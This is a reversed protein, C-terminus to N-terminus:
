LILDKSLSEGSEIRRIAEALLPAVSVVTFKKNKLVEDKQRITDTIIVEDIASSNIRELAPGSFLGHTALVM